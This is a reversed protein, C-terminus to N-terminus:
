LYDCINLQYFSDNKPSIIYERGDYEFLISNNNILYRDSKIQSLVFNASELINDVNIDMKNERLDKKILTIVVDKM